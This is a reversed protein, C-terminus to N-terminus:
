GKTIALTHFYLGRRGNAPGSTIQCTDGILRHCRALAEAAPLTRFRYFSAPQISESMTVGTTPHYSFGPPFHGGQRHYSAPLLDRQLATKM